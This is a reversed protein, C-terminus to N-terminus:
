WKFRINKKGCRGTIRAENTICYRSGGGGGGGISGEGGMVVVVSGGGSNQDGRVGDNGGSGGRGDSDNGGKGDSDDGGEGVVMVTM